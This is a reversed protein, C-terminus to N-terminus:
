LSLPQFCEFVRFLVNAYFARKHRTDNRSFIWIPAPLCYGTDILQRPEILTGMVGSYQCGAAGFYQATGAYGIQFFDGMKYALRYYIGHQDVVYDGVRPGPKEDLLKLRERIIVLNQKAEKKDVPGGAKFGRLEIKKIIMVSKILM